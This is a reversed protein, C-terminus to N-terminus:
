KAVERNFRETFDPRKPRMLDWNPINFRNFASETTTLRLLSKSDMYERARQTSPGYPVQQLFLAQNKPNTMEDFLAMLADWSQGKRTAVVGWSAALPYDEPTVYRVDLGRDQLGFIRGNTTVGVWSENDAFSKELANGSPVVVSLQGSDRLKKIEQYGCDLSKPDKCGVAAAAELFAWGFNTGWSPLMVKGKYAPNWLDAWKTPEPLNNQKLTDARYGIGVEQIGIPLYYGQFSEVQQQIRGFYGGAYPIKSYDLKQIAQNAILEPVFADDVFIFDSQANAKEAIAKSVMEASAGSGIKCTAGTDLELAGCFVAQTGDTWIGGWSVGSITTGKFNKAVAPAAAPSAAAAAPAQGAAAPSAAPAAAPAPPASKAPASPPTSAPGSCAALLGAATGGALLTLFRRRVIPRQTLMKRM